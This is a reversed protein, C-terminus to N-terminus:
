SGMGQSDAHSAEVRDGADVFARDVARDLLVVQHRVVAAREATTVTLLDDFMARQRRVVQLSTAGYLRIEDCALHVLDRWSPMPVVLRQVGQGDVHVGTPQPLAAIRRLLDHLRDIAQVATTPDNIAPSLAREAIDVLQRFGFAPDQAMTREIGSGIRALVARTDVPAHRDDVFWVDVAPAGSPVYDGIQHVLRMVAGSRRAIEVLDDEDIGLIVGPERDWTLVQDPARDPLRPPPGPEAFDITERLARRTERAVREIVSVVRISQALHSVFVVFAALSVIVLTLALTVSLGPTTPDDPDVYRLTLLSYTFSAVLLGLTWQTGRDRLFTRLARPSFQSSGLQLAVATISFVIGTFTLTSGAITSLVQSAQESSGDYALVAPRDGGLAEDLRHMLTSVAWAAIVAVLPIFWLGTRIRERVYSVRV